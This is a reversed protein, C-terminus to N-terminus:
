IAPCRPNGSGRIQAQLLAEEGQLHVPVMGEESRLSARPDTEVEWGLAQPEFSLRLKVWGLVHQPCPFPALVLGWFLQLPNCHEESSVDLLPQAVLTHRVQGQWRAVRTWSGRPLLMRPEWVCVCVGGLSGSPAQARQGWLEPTLGM